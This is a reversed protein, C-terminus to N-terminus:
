IVIKRVRRLLPEYTLENWLTVRPENRYDRSYSPCAQAWTSISFSLIKWLDLIPVCTAFSREATWCTGVYMCAYTQMHTRNRAFGDTIAETEIHMRALSLRSPQNAPQRTAQIDAQRKDARGDPCSELVHADERWEMAM